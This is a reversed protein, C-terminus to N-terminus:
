KANKVVEPEILFKIDKKVTKCLGDKGYVKLAGLREGVKLKRSAPAPICLPLRKSTLDRWEQRFGDVEFVARFGSLDENTNLVFNYEQGLANLDDGQTLVIVEM